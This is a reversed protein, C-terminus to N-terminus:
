GGVVLTDSRQPRPAAGGRRLTKAPRGKEGVCQVRRQRHRGDRRPRAARRAGPPHSM